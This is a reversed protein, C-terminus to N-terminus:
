GETTPASDESAAERLKAKKRERIVEFGIPVVSLLVLVVVIIDVHERIFTVNGLWVGAFTLLFCWLLAGIINWKAFDAYRYKAIGATLPVFTRVIPVFRALILAKGGYKNFFDHARDLNQFNLIRGKESFLRRGFYHGLMYGVQDGLIAAVSVSALLVWLNLGLQEHLLGTTFLLSDGPLFPFLVGSEIFVMLVVLGLVWPGANALVDELNFGLLGVSPTPLMNLVQVHQPLHIGLDAIVSM